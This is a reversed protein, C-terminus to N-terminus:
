GKKAAKKAADKLTQKVRMVPHLGRLFANAERSTMGEGTDTPEKVLRLGVDGYHDDLHQQIPDIKGAM